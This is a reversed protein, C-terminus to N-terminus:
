ISVLGKMLLVRSRIFSGGSALTDVSIDSVLLGISTIELRDDYLAVQMDNWNAYSRHAAAHAIAKRVPTM